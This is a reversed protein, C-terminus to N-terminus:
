GGSVPPIIAIIDGDKLVVENSAYSENVAITYSTLQTLSPFRKQFYHRFEEVKMQNQIEFEISNTGVLDMAIGFLLVQIKM